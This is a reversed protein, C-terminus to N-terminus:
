DIKYTNLLLSLCMLCGVFCVLIIKPLSFFTSYDTGHWIFTFFMLLYFIALPLYFIQINDVM